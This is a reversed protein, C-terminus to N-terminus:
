CDCEAVNGEAEIAKPVNRKRLNRKPLNHNPLNGEAVNGELANREAKICAAENSGTEICAM